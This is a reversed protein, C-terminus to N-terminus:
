KTEVTRRTEWRYAAFRGRRAILTLDQSFGPFISERYTQEHEQARARTDVVFLADWRRAWAASRDLTRGDGEFGAPPDPLTPPLTRRVPPSEFRLFSYGVTAGERLAHRAFLHRLPSRAFGEVGVDRNVPLLSAHPSIADLVAIGDRAAEDAARVITELRLAAALSAALCLARLARSPSSCPVTAIAALFALAAFREGVYFTAVFVTPVVLYLAAYGLPLFASVTESKAPPVPTRRARIVLAILAVSLSALVLADGRDSATGLTNPVLSALRALPGDHRGEAWANEWPAHPHARAWLFAGVDFVSALLLPGAAVLWGRLSRLTPVRLLSPVALLAFGACAALTALVHTTALALACAYARVLLAGDRREARLELADGLAVFLLPVGLTFNAFGWSAAYHLTLLPALLAPWPSEGLVRRLRAIALTLGAAGLTLVAHGATVPGLLPRLLTTAFEFGANYTFLNLETTSTSGNALHRALTDAVLEHQPLDVMPLWRSPLLPLAAVLAAVVLARPQAERSRVAADAAKSSSARM